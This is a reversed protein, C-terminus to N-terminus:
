HFRATIYCLKICDHINFSDFCDCYYVLFGSFVWLIDMIFSHCVKLPNCFVILVGAFFNNLRGAVAILSGKLHFKTIKRGKV